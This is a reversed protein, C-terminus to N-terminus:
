DLFEIKNLPYFSCYIVDFKFIFYFLWYFAIDFLALRDDRGLWSGVFHELLFLPITLAYAALM